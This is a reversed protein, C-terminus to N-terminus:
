TAVNHNRNCPPAQAGPDLMASEERALAKLEEPDVEGDSLEPLPEEEEEEEEGSSSGWRAALRERLRAAREMAAEAGGAPEQGSAVPVMVDPRCLLRPQMAKLSALLGLL